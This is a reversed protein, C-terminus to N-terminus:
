PQDEEIDFVFTDPVTGVESWVELRLGRAKVAHVPAGAPLPGSVSEASWTEGALQVVGVPNLDTLAVGPTGRVHPRLALQARLRQRLVTLALV